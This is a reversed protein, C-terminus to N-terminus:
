LALKPVTNETNCYEDVDNRKGHLNYMRFRDLFQIPDNATLRGGDLPLLLSESAPPANQRSAACTNGTSIHVPVM